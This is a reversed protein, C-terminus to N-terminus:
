NNFGVGCMPVCPGYHLHCPMVVLCCCDYYYFSWFFHMRELALAGAVMALVAVAVLVRM